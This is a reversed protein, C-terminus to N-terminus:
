DRGAHSFCEQCKYIDDNVWIFTDKEQKKSCDSCEIEITLEKEIKM